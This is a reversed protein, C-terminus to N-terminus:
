GVKSRQLNIRTSGCCLIYQFEKLDLADKQAIEHQVAVYSTNFDFLNPLFVPQVITSGCCLIYQFVIIKIIKQM